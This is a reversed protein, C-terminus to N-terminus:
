CNVQAFANSIHHPLITFPCLLVYARLSVIPRRSPDMGLMYSLNVYSFAIKSVKDMVTILFKYMM